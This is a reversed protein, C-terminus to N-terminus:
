PSCGQPDGTIAFGRYAPGAGAGSRLEQRPLRAPEFLTAHLEATRAEVVDALQERHRSIEDSAAKQATIDRAILLFGRLNKNEDYLRSGAISVPVTSGDLRRYTTEIGAACCDPAVSLGPELLCNPVDKQSEFLVSVPQDVLENEQYGLLTYTARNATIIKADLGALVLSDTMTAIIGEAAKSPTLTFLEYKWIAVAVLINALLFSPITFPIANIGLFHLGLEVLQSILPVLGALLMIKGQSKKREDTVKRYYLIYLVASATPALLIWLYAIQSFLNEQVSYSWGWPQLVPPGSVPHFLAESVSIFLAPGYIIAHTIKYKLWSSRETFVIAFHLWAAIHVTWLVDIRWWFLADEYSPSLRYGFEVLSYYAVSM